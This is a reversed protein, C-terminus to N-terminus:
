YSVKRTSLGDDTGWPASITLYAVSDSTLSDTPNSNLIQRTTTSPLIAIDGVNLEINTIDFGATLGTGYDSVDAPVIINMKNKLCLFIEFKLKDDPEGEPFYLQKLSGFRWMRVLTAEANKDGVKTSKVKIFEVADGVDSPLMKDGEDGLYVVEEPKGPEHEGSTVNALEQQLFALLEEGSMGTQRAIEESVKDIDFNTPFNRIVDVTGNDAPCSELIGPLIVEPGISEDFIDSPYSDVVSPSANFNRDLNNMVMKQGM